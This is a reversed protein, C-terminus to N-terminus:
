LFNETSYKLFSIEIKRWIAMECEWLILSYWTKWLTVFVWLLNWYCLKQFTKLWYGSKFYGMTPLTKYDSTFSHIESCVQHSLTSGCSGPPNYYSPPGYQHRPEAFPIFYMMTIGSQRNSLWDTTLVSIPTVLDDLRNVDIQNWFCIQYRLLFLISKGQNTVLSNIKKSTHLTMNLYSVM